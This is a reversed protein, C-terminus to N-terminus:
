RVHRCASFRHSQDADALDRGLEANMGLRNPSQDVVAPEVGNTDSAHKTNMTLSEIAEERMLAHLRRTELVSAPSM